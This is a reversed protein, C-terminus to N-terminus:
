KADLDYFIKKLDIRNNQAFDKITSIIIKSTKTKYVGRYPNQVNYLKGSETMKVAEKMAKIIDLKQPKCDIVSDARVRGKQRDGINVTPIRFSPAEIIGSSSNGIVMSAYKLASLYRRMGLSDYVRANIHDEAYKELISNIIRGNQDANAKTIIFSMDSFEDIAELLENIQEEATYNELTVPHFTVVAYDKSLNMGLEQSLEDRSLLDVNEINEIGTSGVNFVRDPNEGMQIVRKRYAETSTFHLYSMKTIAHRFADDVAGETIEGGHMHAIPIRANVAACAVALTEYRDGLLLVMDFNNESFYEGFSILALGMSKSVAAPTDASLLIDIKKSIPVGDTEIERYTLGFEPSLHMGTVVINVDYDPDKLMGNIVPRLLGYEARTATVICIKVMYKRKYTLRELM